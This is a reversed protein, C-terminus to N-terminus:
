SCAIQNWHEIKRQSHHAVYNKLSWFVKKWSLDTRIILIWCWFMGEHFYDLIFTTLILWIVYNLYLLYHSDIDLVQL